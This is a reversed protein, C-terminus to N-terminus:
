IYHRVTGVWKRKEREEAEFAYPIDMSPLVLKATGHSLDNTGPREGRLGPNV